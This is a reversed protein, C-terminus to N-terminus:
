RGRQAVAIFCWRRCRLVRFGPPTALVTDTWEHGDFRYRLQVARTAGSLLRELAVPPSLEAEGAYSRSDGKERVALLTAVAVLDAFLQRLTAPDILGEVMLPVPPGDAFTPQTM